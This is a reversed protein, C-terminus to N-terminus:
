EAVLQTKPYPLIEYKLKGLLEKKRKGKANFYIYRHKRPREVYYVNEDGYKDRVEQMTMRNAYTAHHQHELGKVKPDKFKASLGCYLFNTAQYVTGNDHRFRNLIYNGSKVRFARPPTFPEKLYQSNDFVYNKYSFSFWTTLNDRAIFKAINFINNLTVMEDSDSIWIWDCGQELLYFLARSRAEAESVFKPETVLYDLPLTKLYDTAELDKAFETGEYEKFPVSVAAIIWETDNLKQERAQLWIPISEKVYEINGFGCYLVGVKTM